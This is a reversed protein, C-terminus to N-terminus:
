RPTQTRRALIPLGVLAIRRGRDSATALRGEIMGAIGPLENLPVRPLLDLIKTLAKARGSTRPLLEIIPVDIAEAIAKLVIVSPNGQGGEIQALYRESTGSQEALQRRTMGRKARESRLLRGVAVAFAEARSSDAAESRTVPSKRAPPIAATPTTATPTTAKAM